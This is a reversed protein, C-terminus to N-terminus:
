PNASRHQSAPVDAFHRATADDAPYFTEITLEDLTVDGATLVATVSFLSLTREELRIVMPLVVSDLRLPEDSAPVPYDRIEDRLAILAGAATLEIRRDLQHLLHSRWQSLNLLRPALGDPHLTARLVNIPPDLLHPAIGGLMAWAAGNADLVDWRRDLVLAPLPEHTDLIQRLAASM